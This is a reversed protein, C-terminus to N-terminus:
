RLWRQMRSRPSIARPPTGVQLSLRLCPSLPDHTVITECPVTSVYFYVRVGNALHLRGHPGEALWPSGHAATKARGIEELLWRVAGRRAIVEAHSDHLMDGGRELRTAPLCKSGTGLSIIKLSGAPDSLVFAALITFKGAPPRFSLSTYLTLVANAIDDPTHEAM